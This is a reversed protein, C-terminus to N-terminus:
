MHKKLLCYESDIPFTVLISIRPARERLTQSETLELFPGSVQM